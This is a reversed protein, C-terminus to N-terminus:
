QRFKMINLQGAQAATVAYLVDGAILEVTLSGGPALEFGAAATVGDGGLFVDVGGSNHLLASTPDGIGGRIPNVVVSPTTTIEVVSSIIPM